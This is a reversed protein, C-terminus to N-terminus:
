PRRLDLYGEPKLVYRNAELAATFRQLLSLWGAAAVGQPMEHDLAIVQGYRGGPGPDLDLANITGGEDAKLLIWGERPFYDVRIAANPDQPGHDVVSGIDACRYRPLWAVDVQDPMGTVLDPFHFHRHVLCSAAFEVPLRFGLEREVEAIEALTAPPGYEVPFDPFREALQQEIRQWLAAVAPQVRALDAADWQEQPRPAAPDTVGEGTLLDQEREREAADLLGLEFAARWRIENGHRGDRAIERLVDVARDRHSPGCAKVRTSVAHEPKFLAPDAPDPRHVLYREPAAALARLESDALAPVLRPDAEHLATVVRCPFVGREVAGRLAALVQDATGLELLVRVADTVTHEPAAGAARRMRSIVQAREQPGAHAHERAFVVADFDGAEAYATEASERHAPDLAALAIATSLHQWSAAGGHVPHRTVPDSEPDSLYRALMRVAAPGEGRVLEVIARALAARGRFDHDLCHRLAVGVAASRAALGIRAVAGVPPPGDAVRRRAAAVVDDVRLSQPMLVAAPCLHGADTREGGSM